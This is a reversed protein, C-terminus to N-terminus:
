QELAKHQTDVSDVYYVKFMSNRYLGPGLKGKYEKHCLMIERESGVHYAMEDAYAEVLSNQRRIFASGTVWAGAAM